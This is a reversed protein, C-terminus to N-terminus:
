ARLSHRRRPQWVWSRGRTQWSRAPRQVVHPQAGHGRLIPAGTLRPDEERATRVRLTGRWPIVHV